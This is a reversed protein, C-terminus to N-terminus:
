PAPHVVAVADLDFGAAPPGASTALDRIRVYRARPVGIAALDFPDGGAVAPNTPDIGNEVSSYVPHWGACSSMMFDASVCPFSTWTTGDASVSVEALM